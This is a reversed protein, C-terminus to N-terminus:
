SKTCVYFQRIGLESVFTHQFREIFREAAQQLALPGVPLLVTGRHLQLKWGTLAFLKRVECSPLFRHPGEGHGGFLFTFIRYPVESTAPPCSLVMLADPTSVRHLESLFAVTDQVHELTELSVIRNFRADAFPLKSYTEIKVQNIYPRIQAAVDMLGRSIEANVVIAEANTQRIYDNAEADRSSINLVVPKGSLGLHQMTERFRQDHAAKVKNNERIYISAVNDWHTEVDRDTWTNKHPFAM